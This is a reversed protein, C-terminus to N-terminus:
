CWIQVTIREDDRSHYATAEGDFFENALMTERDEVMLTIAGTRVSEIYFSKPFQKAGALGLEELTAHGKGKAWRFRDSMYTPNAAEFEPTGPTERLLKEYSPM